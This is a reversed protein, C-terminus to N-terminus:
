ALQQEAHVPSLEGLQAHPAIGSLASEKGRAQASGFARAEINRAANLDRDMVLGCAQCVFLRYTELKEKLIVGCGSCTRSTYAPNVKILGRGAYEAKYALQNHLIGWTQETISRNLGSKQAVNKGPEEVTGAASRTMNRIQLDEVAIRGFRRVLDTSARHCANRNRITNRYTERSLSRVKKRRSISGKRARAM